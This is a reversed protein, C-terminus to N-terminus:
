LSELGVEVCSAECDESADEVPGDEDDQVAICVALSQLAMQEPVIAGVPPLVAYERWPHLVVHKEVNVAQLAVFEIVVIVVTAEPSAQGQPPAVEM